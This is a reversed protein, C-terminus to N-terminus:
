ISSAEVMYNNATCMVADDSALFLVMRAIYVPEIPDPLCQRRLHRELAEPTVWLRKQRETMIWGPVVAHGAREGAIEALMADPDIGHHGAPDHGLPLLLEPDGGLGELTMEADASGSATQIETAWAPRNDTPMM